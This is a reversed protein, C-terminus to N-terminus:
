MLSYLFSGAAAALPITLNDEVGFVDAAMVLLTILLSALPPYGVIILALANAVSGAATGWITVRGFLRRGGVGVGVIASVADYVILSVIAAIFHVPGFLTISSLFGLAGMVIGLYGHRKEYDREALAIFEEIQKVFKQYQLEPKDLPIFRDLRELLEELSKLLNQRVENWLTPQRVQISYLFGSVAALSAIYIDIPINVFLPIAVLAVFTIHFIKRALLRRLESLHSM